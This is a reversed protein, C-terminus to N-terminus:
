KMNERLLQIDESSIKSKHHWDLNNELIKNGQGKITHCIIARPKIQKMSLIELLQSPDNIMDAEFTELGFSVWKEKFNELPCVESVEAYSQLKNYDIIFTLNNLNNKNAS